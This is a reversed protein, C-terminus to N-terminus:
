VLDESRSHTCTSPTEDKPEESAMTSSMTTSSQHAYEPGVRIASARKPPMEIIADVQDRDETEGSQGSEVTEVTEVDNLTM